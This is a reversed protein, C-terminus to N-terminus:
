RCSFEGTGKSHRKQATGLVSSKTGWVVGAGWVLDIVEYLGRGICRERARHGLFLELRTISLIPTKLLWAHRTM